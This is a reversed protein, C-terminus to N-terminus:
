ITGNGLTTVVALKRADRDKSSLIIERDLVPWVIGFDPDNYIVSLENEPQYFGSQLYVVSSNDELSLFGHACGEPVYVQYPYAADLITGFWKKYTPSDPRADAVVDFIRGSVCTVRKSYPAIHLGRLVHRNSQSWNVQKIEGSNDRHLEQFFGRCDGYRNVAITTCNNVANPVSIM